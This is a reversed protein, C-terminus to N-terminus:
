KLSSVIKKYMDRTYMRYLESRGYLSVLGNELSSYEDGPKLIHNLRYLRCKHKKWDYDKILTLLGIKVSNTFNLDVTKKSKTLTAIYEYALPLENCKKRHYLAFVVFSFKQFAFESYGFKIGTAVQQSYFIISQIDEGSCVLEINKDNKSFRLKHRLNNIIAHIEKQVQIPNRELDKSKHLPNELYAWIFRYAEDDDMRRFLLCYQVLELIAEHREGYSLTTTLIDEIKKPNILSCWFLYRGLV